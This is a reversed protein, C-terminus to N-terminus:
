GVIQKMVIIYQDFTIPKDTNAAYESYKRAFAERERELKRVEVRAYDHVVRESIDGRQFIVFAMPRGATEVGSVGNDEDIGGGESRALDGPIFHEIHPDMGNEAYITDIHLDLGLEAHYLIDLWQDSPTIRGELAPHRIVRIGRGIFQYFESFSGYPRMPVVVCIPPFDYGQGLM